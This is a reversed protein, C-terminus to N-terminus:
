AEYNIGGAWSNRISHKLVTIDERLLEFPNGANLRLPLQDYYNELLIYGTYDNLGLWKMTEDFGSDGKGLIMGSMANLGDKVHLQDCMYPYLENLIDTQRYGRFLHYNQSDYYLYFNDRKVCEYFTKFEEPNMLNESAVGIGYEGATDCLYRFAAASHEMDEETKVESKGFGPVQIIRVGLVSATVVARRLLDWVIDYERTGKRAHMPIHDFDNLAIACYEIGYRQQEELYIKQMEPQTLPYDNEYLGIRLSLAELGVSAAIAAAYLGAGPLGWDCAGIKIQKM